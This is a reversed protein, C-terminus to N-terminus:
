PTEAANEHWLDFAETGHSTHTAQPPPAHITGASGSARREDAEARSEERVRVSLRAVRLLVSAVCCCCVLPEKEKQGGVWGRVEM